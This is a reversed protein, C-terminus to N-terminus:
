TCIDSKQAFEVSHQELSYLLRISGEVGLYYLLRWMRGAPQLREERDRVPQFLEYRNFSFTSQASASVQESRQV